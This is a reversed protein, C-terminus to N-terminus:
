SGAWRLVGSVLFSSVRARMRSVKMAIIPSPYATRFWSVSASRAPTEARELWAEPVAAVQRDTCFGMEVVLTGLRIRRRQRAAERQAELAAELQEDTLAGHEVLVEGLRRRVAGKATGPTM